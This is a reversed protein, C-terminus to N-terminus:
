VGTLFRKRLLSKSEEPHNNRYALIANVTASLFEKEKEPSIESSFVPLILNDTILPVLKDDVQAMFTDSSIMPRMVAHRIYEAVKVIDYKFQDKNNVAKDLIKGCPSFGIATSMMMMQTEDSLVFNLFEVAGATCRTGAMVASSVPIFVRGEPSVPPPLVTIKDFTWPLGAAGSCYSGRISYKINNAELEKMDAFLGQPLTLRFIKNRYIKLLMNLFLELKHPLEEPEVNFLDDMGLSSLMFSVAMPTLVREESNESIYRAFANLGQQYDYKSFDLERRSFLLPPQLQFPISYVDMMDLAGPLLDSMPRFRKQSRLIEMRPILQCRRNVENCSHFVLAADESKRENLTKIVWEEDSSFKPEIRWKPNAKAFAEFVEYWFSVQWPNNEMIIVDILNEASDASLQVKDALRFGKYPTCVLIGDEELEKLAANVVHHSEGFLQMLDRLSPLSEKFGSTKAAICEAIKAKLQNVRKSM